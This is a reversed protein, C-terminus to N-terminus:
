LSREMFVVARSAPWWQPSNSTIFGCHGGSSPRELFLCPNRSAEEVPYCDGDLMPDNLPAVMLLPVNLKSFHRCASANFYYDQADKFGAYPATYRNDFDDFTAIEDIGKIDLKDPFQQAKSKIMAVLDKVFHRAYIKGMPTHFQASSAVLDTTACFVVGGCVQPPLSDAMRGLYLASLNGGMSYGSYAVKKYGGTAIAHQTLWHLEHDSNNTTYELKLGPSGGTGRFNWALCDWGAANFAKILSLVYHRRSHGCLGHSIIVLKDSNVRAWDLLIIDEDPTHFEERVLNAPVSEHRFYSPWITQVHSLNLPFPPAQYTSHEILPM